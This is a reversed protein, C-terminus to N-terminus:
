AACQPASSWVAKLQRIRNLRGELQLMVQQIPLSNELCDDVGMALGQQLYQMEGSPYFGAIPLDSWHTHARLMQCLQLSEPRALDMVILDPQGAEITGQWITSDSPLAQIQWHQL